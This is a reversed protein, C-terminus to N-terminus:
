ATARPGAQFDVVTASRGHMIAQITEAVRSAAALLAADPRRVYHRETVGRRAHGLLESVTGDGYGLEAAITAFTRRMDHSRADSLGAADFLAAIRKKLDAAGSGLRNPFVWEESLHPLDKLLELAPAGLPRTSRGTKSAQLRICQGAEDIEAWRLRCAEDRRMGTLAVLWVASVEMPIPSAETALAAGLQKLEAASLVRDSADAKTTEVGRCPNTGAVFGRKEAWTWIGGLLEVVRAATIPGGTVVARGRPKDSKFVGATEGRAIADAMRQVMASTLNRAKERGILPVIHRSIRGADIALTSARKVKRFRTLVQGAKAATLYEAALEAVTLAEREAIKEAQPDIGRAADGIVQEAAERARETTVPGYWGLRLRRQAGSVRVQAVFQKRGSPYVRVGFGPTGSCWIFYDGARPKAAEVATKTLKPMVAAGGSPPSSAYQFRGSAFLPLKHFIPAIRLDSLDM